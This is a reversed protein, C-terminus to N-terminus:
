IEILIGISIYDHNIRFDVSSGRFYRQLDLAHDEAPLPNRFQPRRDMHYREHGCGQRQPLDTREGRYREDRGCNATRVRLDHLFHAM